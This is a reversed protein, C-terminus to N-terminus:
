EIRLLENIKEVREGRQLGGVFFYQAAVGVALHTAFCDETEGVSATVNVPMKFKRATRACDLITSVLGVQIPQLTVQNSLQGRGANM